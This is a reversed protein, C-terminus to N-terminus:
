VSGCGGLKLHKEVAKLYNRDSLANEPLRNNDIASKVLSEATIRGSRVGNGFNSHSPVGQAKFRGHRAMTILKRPTLKYSQTVALDSSISQAEAPITITLATLLLTSTTLVKFM